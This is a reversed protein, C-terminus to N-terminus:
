EGTPTLMLNGFRDVSAQMGSPIVTTSDDALVIAPGSLTHGHRLSRRAYLPAAQRAGDLYIEVSRLPAPTAAARMAACPAAM